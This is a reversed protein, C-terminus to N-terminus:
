RQAVQGILQAELSKTESAFRAMVDPQLQRRLTGHYEIPDVVRGARELQYHLHAGTSHGTNGTKAFVTGAAVSQGEKVLSENLHLFKALVGDQFRLEVCGGNSPQNWNIRTVVGARPAQVPTGIPTKFDMGAHTPRDKLLSTVQEYEELPGAVLRKPVETGDPAWYSPFRDGPAQWRYASYVHESPSGAQSTFRAALVLPEQGVPQEFLVSVLDGRHLDRRMDLDWAFLRTYVASLAAASTDTVGTFTASISSQVVGHYVHSGATAAAGLPAPLPPVQDPPTAANAVTTDDGIVNIAPAAEPAAPEVAVVPAPVPESGGSLGLRVALGLNLALSVGVAGMVLWPKFDTATSRSRADSRDNLFEPLM